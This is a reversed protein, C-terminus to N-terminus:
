TSVKQSVPDYKIQAIVPYSSNRSVSKYSANVTVNAYGQTKNISCLIEEGFLAVSSNLLLYDGPIPNTAFFTNMMSGVRLAESNLTSQAGFEQSNEYSLSFFNQMWFIVFLMIMIALFADLSNIGRKM